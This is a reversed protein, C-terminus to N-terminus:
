FGLALATGLQNRTYSCTHRAAWLARGATRRPWTWRFVPLRWTWVRWTARTSAACSVSHVRMLRHDGSRGHLDTATFANDWGKNEGM